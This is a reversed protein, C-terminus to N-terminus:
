AGARPCTLRKAVQRCWLERHPRYESRIGIYHYSSNLGDNRPPRRLPKFPRV